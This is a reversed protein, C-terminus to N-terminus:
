KYASDPRRPFDIPEIPMDFQKFLSLLRDVRLYKTHPAAKMGRCDFCVSVHAVPQENKYFVLGHRPNYCDAVGADEYTPEQPTNNLSDLLQAQAETLLQGQSNFVTPNLKSNYIISTSDELNLNDYYYARVSDYEIGMWQKKNGNCACLLLLVLCTVVSKNM